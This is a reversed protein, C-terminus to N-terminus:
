EDTEGGTTETAKRARPKRQSGDANLGCARNCRVLAACAERLDDTAAHRDAKAADEISRYRLYADASLVRGARTVNELKAEAHAVDLKAKERLDEWQDATPVTITEAKTAM